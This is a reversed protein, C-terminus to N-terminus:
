SPAEFANKLGIGFHLGCLMAELSNLVNYKGLVPIFGKATDDGSKVTFYTKGCDSVLDSAVIDANENEIEKNMAKIEEVFESFLM